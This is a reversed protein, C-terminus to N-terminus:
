GPVVALLVEDRHRFKVMSAKPMARRVLDALMVQLTLAVPGTETEMASPLPELSVLTYQDEIWPDTVHLWQKRQPTVAATPWLDVHRGRFADDVPGDWLVWEVQIGNRSAAAQIIDVTVGEVGGDPRIMQYPPSHDIGIRVKHGAYPPWLYRAVALYGVGGLISVIALAIAVTRRSVKRTGFM